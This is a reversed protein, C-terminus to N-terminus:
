MGQSARNQILQAIKLGNGAGLIKELLASIRKIKETEAVFGNGPTQKLGVSSVQLCLGLNSKARDLKQM